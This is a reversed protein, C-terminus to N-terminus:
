PEIWAPHSPTTARAPASASRSSAGSRRRRACRPPRWPGGAALEDRVDSTPFPGRGPIADAPSGRRAPPRGSAGSRASGAPRARARTSRGTSGAAPSRRAGARRADDGRWMSSSSGSRSRRGAAPEGELELLALADGLGPQAVAELAVADPEARLTWRSTPSPSSRVKSNSSCPRRRAAAHEGGDVGGPLQREGTRGRHHVRQPLAMRQRPGISGASTAWRDPSSRPRAQDVAANASGTCHASPTSPSRRCPSAHRVAVVDLAAEALRRRSAWGSWPPSASPAAAACRRASRPGGCGARRTVGLRARGAASSSVRAGAARGAVRREHGDLLRRRAAAPRGRRSGTGRSPRCAGSRGGFSIAQTTSSAAARASRM